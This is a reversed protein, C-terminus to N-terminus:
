SILNGGPHRTAQMDVLNHEPWFFALPMTENCPKLGPTCYGIVNEQQVHQAYTVSTCLHASTHVLPPPCLPCIKLKISCAHRANPSVEIKYQHSHSTKSCHSPVRESIFSWQGLSAWDSCKLRNKHFVLFIVVVVAGSSNDSIAPIRNQFLGKWEPASWGAKLKPIRQMGRAETSFKSHFSCIGRIHLVCVHFWMCLFAAHHEITYFHALKM